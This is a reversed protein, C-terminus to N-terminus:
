YFSKSDEVLGFAGAARSVEEEEVVVCGTLDGAARCGRVGRRAPAVGTRNSARSSERPGKPGSPSM